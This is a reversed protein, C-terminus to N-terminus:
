IQFFLPSPKAPGGLARGMVWCLGSLGRFLGIGGIDTPVSLCFSSIVSNLKVRAAESLSQDGVIEAAKFLVEAQGLSGCCLSMLSNETSAALLALKRRAVEQQALSLANWNALRAVLHGAIGRCWSLTASTVITAASYTPDTELIRDEIEICRLSQVQAAYHKAGRSLIHLGLSVGSLGHALGTGMQSILTEDGQTEVYMVIEDCLASLAPPLPQNRAESLRVLGACLGIRGHLLDLDSITLPYATLNTAPDRILQGECIENTNSMHKFAFASAYARGGVGDLIGASQSPHPLSFLDALVTLCRRELKPFFQSVVAVALSSGLDGGYINNPSHFHSRAELSSLVALGCAEALEITNNIPMM